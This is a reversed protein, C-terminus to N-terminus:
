LKMMIPCVVVAVFLLVACVTGFTVDTVKQIKELREIDGELKRTQANDKSFKLNIMDVKREKNPKRGHDATSCGVMSM